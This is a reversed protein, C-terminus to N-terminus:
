ELSTSAARPLPRADNSGSGSRWSRALPNVPPAPPSTTKSPSREAGDASLTSKSTSFTKGNMKVLATLHHDDVRKIAMTEASPKGAVLVPANAGDRASDVVMTMESHGNFRYILRYGGNCCAEVTMTINGANPGSQQLWTGTGIQARIPSVFWPAFLSCGYM